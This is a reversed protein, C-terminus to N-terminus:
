KILQKLQKQLKKKAHMLHRIHGPHVLDFTGHSMIVRRDRPRPGLITRLEERDKIKRGYDEAEGM